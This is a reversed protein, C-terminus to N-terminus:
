AVEKEKQEDAKEQIIKQVSDDALLRRQDLAQDTMAVMRDIYDHSQTYDSTDMALSKADNRNIAAQYHNLLQKNGQLYEQTIDNSKIVDAVDPNITYLSTSLITNQSSDSVYQDSTLTDLWGDYNYKIQQYDSQAKVLDINILSQAQQHVKEL